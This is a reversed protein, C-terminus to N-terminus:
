KKSAVSKSKVQLDTVQPQCLNQKKRMKEVIMGARGQGNFCDYSLFNLYDGSLDVYLHCNNYRKVIDAGDRLLAKAKKISLNDNAGAAAEKLYENVCVVSKGFPEATNYLEILLEAKNLDGIYITNHM